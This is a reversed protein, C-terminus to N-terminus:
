VKRIECLARLETAMGFGKENGMITASGLKYRLAIRASYTDVKIRFINQRDKSTSNQM